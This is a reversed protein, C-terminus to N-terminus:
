DGRFSKPALFSGSEQQGFSVIEADFPTIDEMFHLMDPVNLDM